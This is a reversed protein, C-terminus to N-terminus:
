VTTSPSILTLCPRRVENSSSGTTRRCTSSARSSTAPAHRPRSTSISFRTERPSPRGGRATERTSACQVCSPVARRRRPWGDESRCVVQRALRISRKGTRLGVSAFPSEVVDTTRLHKWPEKPFDYFAVLRDRDDDVCALGGLPSPPSQAARSENSTPASGRLSLLDHFTGQPRLRDGLAGPHDDSSRLASRRASAARCPTLRSCPWHRPAGGPRALVRARPVGPRAAPHAGRFRGVLAPRFTM